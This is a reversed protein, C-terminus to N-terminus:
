KSTFSNKLKIALKKMAKPPIERKEPRPIYGFDPDHFEIGEFYVPDQYRPIFHWHIEPNPNPKRFVSNKYCSWNYLTPQFIQELSEEMKQVVRAFDTWEENSVQSLNNCHRKLAVVCTGLYRQSPALYVMWHTTEGILEGYGGDIQCYECSNNM